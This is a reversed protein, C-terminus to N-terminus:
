LPTSLPNKISVVEKGIDSKFIDPRQVSMVFFFKFLYKTINSINLRRYKNMNFRFFPFAIRECFIIRGCKVTDSREINGISLNFFRAGVRKGFCKRMNDSILRCFPIIDNCNGSCHRLSCPKLPEPLLKWVTKEIDADGFLM